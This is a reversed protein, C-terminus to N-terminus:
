KLSFSFLLPHLYLWLFFFPVSWGVSRKLSLLTFLLCQPFCSTQVVQLARTHTSLFFSIGNLRLCPFIIDETVDSSVNLRCAGGKCRKNAAWQPMQQYILNYKCHLGIFTLRLPTERAFLPKIAVLPTRTTVAPHPGILLQKAVIVLYHTTETCVPHWSGGSQCMVYLLYLASDIKSIHLHNFHVGKHM